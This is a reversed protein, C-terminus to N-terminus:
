KYFITGLLGTSNAVAYCAGGPPMYSTPIGLQFFAASPGRIQLFTTTDGIYVYGSAGAVNPPGDIVWGYITSASFTTTTGILQVRGIQWNRQLASLAEAGSVFDINGIPINNPSSM